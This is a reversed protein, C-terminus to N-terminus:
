TEIQEYVGRYKYYIIKGGPRLVEKIRNLYSKWGPLARLTAVDYAKPAKFEELRGEIIELNGLGLREKADKLFLIRKHVSELLTVNLNVFLLSIPIGPFGAGSGIDILNGKSPIINIPGLSDLFHSAILKDLDRRSVLNIRKSWLLILDNYITIKVLLEDSLKLRRSDFWNKLVILDKSNLSM